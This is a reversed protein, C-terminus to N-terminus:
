GGIPQACFAVQVPGSGSSPTLTVRVCAFPFPVVVGSGSTFTVLVDHAGTTLAPIATGTTANPTRFCATIDTWKGARPGSGGGGGESYDNSGEILWAGATTSGTLTQLDISLYGFLAPGQIAIVHPNTDAPVAFPVPATGAFRDYTTGDYVRGYADTKM